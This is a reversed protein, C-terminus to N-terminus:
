ESTSQDEVKATAAGEKIVAIAHQCADKRVYGEDAMAIVKGNAAKLRWRYEKRADKFIEFTLEGKAPDAGSPRPLTLSSTVALLLTFAAAPIWRRM